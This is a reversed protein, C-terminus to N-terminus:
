DHVERKLLPHDPGLADVLENYVAYREAKQENIGRQSAHVLRDLMRQLENM